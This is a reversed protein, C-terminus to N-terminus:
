SVNAGTFLHLYFSKMDHLFAILDFPMLFPFHKKFRRLRTHKRELCTKLKIFIKSWEDLAIKGDDMKGRIYQCNTLQPHVRYTSWLIGHTLTNKQQWWKKLGEFSLFRTQLEWIFIFVFGGIYPQYTDMHRSWHKKRNRKHSHKPMLIIENDRHKCNIITILISSNNNHYIM